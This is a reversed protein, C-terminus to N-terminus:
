KNLISVNLLTVVGEQNNDRGARVIGVCCRVLKVFGKASLLHWVMAGSLLEFMTGGIFLVKCVGNCSPLIVRALLIIM